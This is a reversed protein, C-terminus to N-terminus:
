IISVLLDKRSKWLRNYKKELMTREQQYNRFHRYFPLGMYIGIALFLLVTIFIFEFM